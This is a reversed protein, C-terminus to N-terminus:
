RWGRSAVREPYGAIFYIVPERRWELGKKLGQSRSAGLGHELRGTLGAAVVDHRWSARRQVYVVFEARGVGDDSCMGNCAPFGDKRSDAQMDAADVIYGRIFVLQYPFVDEAQYCPVMVTDRSHMPSLASAGNPAVLARQM